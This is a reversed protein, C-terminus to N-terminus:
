DFSGFSGVSPVSHDGISGFSNNSGWSHSGWSGWGGGVGWGWLKESMSQEKPQQQQFGTVGGMLGSLVTSTNWSLHSQLNMALCVNRSVRAWTLEWWCMRSMCNDPPWEQECIFLSLPSQNIWGQLIFGFIFLFRLLISYKSFVLSKTFAIKPLRTVFIALLFM